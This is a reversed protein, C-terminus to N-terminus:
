ATLALALVCDGKEVPLARVQRILTYGDEGPM